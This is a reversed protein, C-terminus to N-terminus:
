DNIEEELLEDIGKFNNPFLYIKTEDYIEGDDCIHHWDIIQYTLAVYRRTGGDKSRAIPIPVVLILIFILCIIFLKRKM